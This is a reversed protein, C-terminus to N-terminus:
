KKDDGEVLFVVFDIKCNMCRLFHDYQQNKVKVVSVPQISGRSGCQMCYNVFKEM